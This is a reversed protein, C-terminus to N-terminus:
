VGTSVTNSLWGCNAMAVLSELQSPKARPFAVNLGMLRDDESGRISRYIPEVEEWSPLYDDENYVHAGSEESVPELSTGEIEPFAVERASIDQEEELSSREEVSSTEKVSISTDENKEFFDEKENISKDIDRLIKHHTLNVGDNSLIDRTSSLNVRTEPCISGLSKNSKKAKKEPVNWESVDNPVYHSPNKTPKGQFTCTIVNWELLRAFARDITKEDTHFIDALTQASATFKGGEEWSARRVIEGYVAMDILGMGEPLDSFIPTYQKGNYATNRKPTENTAMDLDGV